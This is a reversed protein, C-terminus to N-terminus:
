PFVDLDDALVVEGDYVSRVEALADREPMGYHLGHYLVLLGPQAAAALRGLDTTTTHSSKHYAQFAKSTRLLGEESIYEHLLIDAGTAMERLKESYATDGSIVITLDDTTVRYGFAPKIDGHMVDFAEIRLDEKEFVLGESVETVVPRYSDAVMVPQNGSTRIRIDPQMMAVMADAMEELGTPGFALLPERRRWWLMFNLEVFDLTHDSHMHTLFLCCIESPYLTPIDYKYRAATANRVAGSGADFLYAEGKHIVAVSSGARYADPIPTGTGLMVVRTGTALERDTIGERLEVVASGTPVAFEQAPVTDWGGLAAAFVAGVAPVGSRILRPNGASKKVREGEFHIPDLLNVDSGM